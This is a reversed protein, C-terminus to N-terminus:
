VITDRFIRLSVWFDSYNETETNGDCDKLDIQLSFKKNNNYNPDTLSNITYLGMWYDGTLSGFGQLYAIGDQDFDQQSGNVRRFNM